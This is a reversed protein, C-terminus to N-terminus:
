LHKFSHALLVDPTQSLKYEVLYITLLFDPCETEAGLGVEALWVDSCQM